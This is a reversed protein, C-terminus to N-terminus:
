NELAERASFDTPCWHERISKFRRSRPVHQNVYFLVRKTSLAQRKAQARSRKLCPKFPLRAIERPSFEVTSLTPQTFRCLPLNDFGILAIDKGAQIGRLALTKMAGFAAADNCCLVATPPKPLNLLFLMGQAGGDWTHDCKAVLDKHLPLGILKLAKRLSEYRTNMCSWVLQGSLYGIREHGFEALHRVADRFGTLYNIRINRIGRLAQDTGAYVIRVRNQINALQEEMGFTLVALGEM